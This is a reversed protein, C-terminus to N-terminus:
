GEIPVVKVKTHLIEKKARNWQMWEIKNRISSGPKHFRDFLATVTNHCRACLPIINDVKWFLKEEGVHPVLHDCVTSMEGCSYCTRNIALYKARYTTWKENKYMDKIRKRGDFTKSSSTRASKFTKPRDGM